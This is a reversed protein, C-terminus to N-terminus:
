AVINNVTAIFASTVAKSIHQDMLGGPAVAATMTNDVMALAWRNLTPGGCLAIAKPLALKSAQHLASINDFKMDIAAEANSILEVLLASHAGVASQM